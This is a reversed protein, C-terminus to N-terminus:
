RFQLGPLEPTPLLQAPAGLINPATPQQQLRLLRELEQGLYDARNVVTQAVKRGTLAHLTRAADEPHGSRMAAETYDLMMDTDNQHHQIFSHYDRYAEEWRQERTMKKAHSMVMAQHIREKSMALSVIVLIAVVISCFRVWLPFPFKVLAIRCSECVPMKTHQSLEAAKCNVCVAAQPSEATSAAPEFLSSPSSMRPTLM